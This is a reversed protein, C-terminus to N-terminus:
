LNLVGIRYVWWLLTGFTFIRDVQSGGWDNSIGVASFFFSGRM